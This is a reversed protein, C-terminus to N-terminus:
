PQADVLRAPQCQETLPLPQASQSMQVDLSTRIAESLTWNNAGCWAQWAAAESETCRVKIFKQRAM